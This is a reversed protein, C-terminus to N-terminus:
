AEEMWRTRFSNDRRGGPLSRLQVSQLHLHLNIEMVHSTGVPLATTRPGVSDVDVLRMPRSWNFGDVSFTKYVGGAGRLVAPFLAEFGGNRANSAEFIYMNADLQPVWGEVHILRFSSWTGNRLEAAQVFRGGGQPLVNARVYLLTRDHRTVVSIKGDLACKPFLREICTDLRIGTDVAVGMRPYIVLSRIANTAAHADGPVVHWEPNASGILHVEHDVCHITPNYALSTANWLVRAMPEGQIRLVPVYKGGYIHRMRTLLFVRGKCHLITGYRETWEFGHRGPRLLIHDRVLWAAACALGLLGAGRVCPRM